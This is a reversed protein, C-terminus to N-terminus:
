TLFNRQDIQKSMMTNIEDKLDLYGIKDNYYSNRDLSGLHISSPDKINSLIFDETEEGSSYGNSSDDSLFEQSKLTRTWSMMM